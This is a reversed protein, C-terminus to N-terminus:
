HAQGGSGHDVPVPGEQVVFDEAVLGVLPTETQSDMVSALLFRTPRQMTSVVTACTMGLLLGVGIRVTRSAMRVPKLYELGREPTLGDRPDPAPARTM